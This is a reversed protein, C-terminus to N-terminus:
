VREIVRLKASASRNNIKLEEKSPLIPKQNIIKIKPLYEKPISPMGKLPAEVESLKKFIQKVIRDELSHFTIVCLRGQPKLLEIAQPLVETLAKLEQNVEIRIAQFIPREPHHQNFYKAGTASKIIAVLQSSTTIRKEKRSNVIQRAIRKSLKEEGYAFFIKMLEEESYNNVVDEAKLTDEQNMRMDLPAEKMFTFGRNTDDIQPSSLGLDFLIGDVEQIHNKALEQKLHSFNSKIIIFNSGITELIKGSALVAERDQDFAFLFGKKIGQLIKASHGAYGLTADVYIGDPKLQLNDIVENLLVSFHQKM